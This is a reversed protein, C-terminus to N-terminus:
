QPHRPARDLVHELRQDAVGVGSGGVVGRWRRGVRRAGSAAALGLAGRLAIAMGELMATVCGFMDRFAAVKRFQQALYLAKDVLNVTLLSISKDFKEEM